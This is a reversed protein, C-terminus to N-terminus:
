ENHHPRRGADPPQCRTILALRGRDDRVRRKQRGPLFANPLSTRQSSLSQNSFHCFRDMADCGLTERRRALAIQPSINSMQSMGYNMVPSDRNRQPLEPALESVDCRIRELEKERGAAIMDRALVQATFLCSRAVRLALETRPWEAAEIDRLAAEIILRNASMGRTNAADEIRQWHDEDVRIHKNLTKAMANQM